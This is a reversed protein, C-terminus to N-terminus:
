AQQLCGLRLAVAALEGHEVCASVDRDQTGVETRCDGGVEDAVEEEAVVQEGEPAAAYDDTRRALSPRPEIVADGRRALDLAHCRGVGNGAGTIVAVRGDFITADVNGQYHYADTRFYFGPQSPLVGGFIDTYGKVWPGMGFEAAQAPHPSLVTVSGLLVCASLLVRSAAAGGSKTGTRM